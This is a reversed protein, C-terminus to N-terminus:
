YITYRYDDEIYMNAATGHCKKVDKSKEFFSHQWFKMSMGPMGLSAYFDDARKVMDISTWNTNKINKKLDVESFPIILDHYLHWDQAWM